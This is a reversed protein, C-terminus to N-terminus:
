AKTIRLYAPALVGSGGAGAGVAPTGTTSSAFASVGYTHAAATPTFRLKGTLAVVLQTSVTVSDAVAIRGISSADAILLMTVTGAAASSDTVQPSFFEAVYPVNEYTHSTGAIIATPTGETTSAVNVGSTIQDYAIEYGPPFVAAAASGASGVVKGATPDALKSIAIAASASVMANTLALAALSGAIAQTWTGPTGASTCVWVAGNQSVVFDGVAFTGTTPAVTATGGVFRTASVAGTLGGTPVALYDANGAVVAGSRGFVSSVSPGVTATDVWTGPSGAVTCVYISADANVVFDGVAFTGTLPAGSANGGVYRTPSVAGTLALPQGLPDPSPTAQLRVGEGDIYSTLPM